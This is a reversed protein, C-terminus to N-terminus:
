SARRKPGGSGGGPFERVRAWAPWEDMDGGKKSRLQILELPRWLVGNDVHKSVAAFREDSHYPMAGFQKVFVPINFAMGADIVEKIWEVNMPRAAHGSEGGVILWDIGRTREFGCPFHISTTEHYERCPEGCTTCNGSIWRAWKVPGLAPEYSVFRVTAKIELIYPIRKTYEESEVSTGIWVQKPPQIGWPWLKLINQPLKTLLLWDLWDGTDQITTWLLDRWEQAISPHDDFIDAVSACFVRARVGRERAGKRWRYPKRWNEASTRKREATPGWGWGFRNAMAEAYCHECGPSIRSCSKWPNFTHDTWEISSNQGM